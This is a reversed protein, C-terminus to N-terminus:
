ARSLVVLFLNVNIKKVALEKFFRAPMLKYEIHNLCLSVALNSALVESLAETGFASCGKVLSKEGNINYWGKPM